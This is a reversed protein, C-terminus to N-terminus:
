AICLKKGKMLGYHCLMHQGGNTEAARRWAENYWMGTLDLQSPSMEFAKPPSYTVLASINGTPPSPSMMTHANSSCLNAVLTLVKTLRRHCEYRSIRAPQTAGAQQTTSPLVECVFDELKDVIVLDPKTLAKSPVGWGALYRVLQRFDGPYVFKFDQGLLSVVEALDPHFKTWRHRTVFVIRNHTTLAQALGPGSILDEPPDLVLCSGNGVPLDSSSAFKALISM